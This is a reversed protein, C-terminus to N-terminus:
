RDASGPAPPRPPTEPDPWEGGGAMNEKGLNMQQPRRVGEDTELPEGTYMKEDGTLEDDNREM